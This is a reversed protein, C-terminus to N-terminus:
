AKNSVSKRTACSLLSRMLIEFSHNAAAGNEVKRQQTRIIYDHIADDANFGADSGRRNTSTRRRRSLFGQLGTDRFHDHMQCVVILLHFPHRKSM